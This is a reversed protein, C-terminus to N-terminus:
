FDATVDLNLYEAFLNLLQRPMRRHQGAATRHRLHVDAGAARLAAAQLRVQRVQPGRYRSQTSPGARLLQRQRLRPELFRSDIRQTEDKVIDIMAEVMWAPAFVEGHDAVRQKSKVLTM